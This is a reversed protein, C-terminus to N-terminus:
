LLADLILGAIDHRTPRSFTHHLWQPRANIELVMGGASSVAPSMVDIAFISLGLAEGIRKTRDHWIPHLQDTVDFPIAGLAMNAVDRLVAERGAEMVSDLQLDQERLLNLMEADVECRNQPNNASCWKDHAAVLTALTTTGDGTVQAPRRTCAAVLEGGVAQIRLDEGPALSELMWRDYQSAFRRWHQTVAALSPPAMAIGHGNTGNVPKCVWPKPPPVTIESPHSFSVSAPTPIQLDALFSKAAPKDDCLANAEQTLSEFIRGHRIRATGIRVWGDGLDTVSLGRERARAVLLEQHPDTV